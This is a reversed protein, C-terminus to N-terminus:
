CMAGRPRDLLGRTGHRQRFRSPTVRHAGAFPRSAHAFDDNNASLARMANFGGLPDTHAIQITKLNGGLKSFYRILEVQTEITISNM